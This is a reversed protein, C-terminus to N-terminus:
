RLGLFSSLEGAERLFGMVQRAGSLTYHGYDWVMPEGSSSVVTCKGNPCVAEVISVYSAGAKEVTKRMEDSFEFKQEDMFKASLQGEYDSFQSLIVPLSKRYEVTPGLVIVTEAHQRLSDITGPLRHMDGEIWRASLIIANLRNNPFFDGWIFKFLDTCRQQGKFPVLPRCGSANAQLVNIEPFVERLANWFHAAHSDGMLLVNPHSDSMKLCTDQDFFDFSYNDSEYFCGPKRYGSRFDDTEKFSLFSLHQRQVDSLRSYYFDENHLFAGISVIAVATVAGAGFVAQRKAFAGFRNRRFPSEVFHYSLISLALSLLVLGCMTVWTLEEFYLSRAISFVPQHWLYLSYSILGVSVFSKLSLLSCILTGSNAFIIILITGVTPVLTYFSPFPTERDYFFIAFIISVLGFSSLMNKVWLPYNIVKRQLHFAAFAGILLEWARTPLLYFTASPKNYAGWNSVGLSLLFTAILVWITTQRGFSWAVMLFLPFFIYFQEEVALSWTHLLPKLEAATDFYGSQLWFYINSSFTAVAILSNSFGQFEDPPLSYFAFPITCLVVFFLAPLIRRARREYFNLLNFKDNEMESIIISTILYGSIVFFIDVGVFGGSFIEFGAHFLIVPVVAVSRLGDIERRYIM